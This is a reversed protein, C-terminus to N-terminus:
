LPDHRKRPEDDLGVVALQGHERPLTNWTHDFPL